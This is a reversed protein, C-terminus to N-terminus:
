EKTGDAVFGGVSSFRLLISREDYHARTKWACQVTCLLFTRNMPRISAAEKTLVADVRGALFSFGGQRVYFLIAGKVEVDDESKIQGYEALVEENPKQKKLIRQCLPQAILAPVNM